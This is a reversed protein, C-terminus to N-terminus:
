NTALDDPALEIRLSTESRQRKSVRADATPIVPEIELYVTLTKGRALKGGVTPAFTHGPQLLPSDAAAGNIIGKATGGAIQTSKGDVQANSLRIILGGHEGFAVNGSANTQGRLTLRIGQAFPCIVSLMVTRKGFSYSDVLAPANRLQWRTKTGYDILEGGLSLVCRRDTAFDGSVKEIAFGESLKSLNFVFSVIMLLKKM